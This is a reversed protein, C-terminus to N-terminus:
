RMSPLHRRRGCRRPAQVASRSPTRDRRPRRGPRRPPRGGRRAAGRERGRPRRHPRGPAAPLSAATRRHDKARKAQPADLLRAMDRCKGRGTIPRWTLKDWWWLAVPVPPRTAWQGGSLQEYVALMREAAVTGFLAVAPPLGVQAAYALVQRVGHRSNKRQSWRSFRTRRSCTPAATPCNRRPSAASSPPSNTWSATSSSSAAQRERHGAPSRRGDPLIVTVRLYSRATEPTVGTLRTLEATDHPDATRPAAPDAASLTRPAVCDGDRVATDNHRERNGAPYRGRGHSAPNRLHTCRSSQFAAHGRIGCEPGGM